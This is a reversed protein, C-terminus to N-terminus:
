PAPPADVPPPPQQATKTYGESSVGGFWPAEIIPPTTPTVPKLVQWGIAGTSNVTEVFWFREHDEPDVDPEFQVKPRKYYTQPEFPVTPPIQWETSNVLVYNGNPIMIVMDRGNAGVTPLHHVVIAKTSPQAILEIQDGPSFAM